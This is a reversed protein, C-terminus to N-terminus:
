LGFAALDKILQEYNEFKIANMGLSKAAEVNKARDDVFVVEEPTLKLEGLVKLFIEKDPKQLGIQHSAFVKDFIKLLKQGYIEFHVRNTNTLCVIKVKAKLKKILQIVQADFKAHKKYQEKYFEVIEAVNHRKSDIKELVDALEREGKQVEAHYRCMKKDGRSEILINIGFKAIMAENIKVSDTLLCVGGQDFIIAKIM